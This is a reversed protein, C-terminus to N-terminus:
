DNIRNLKTVRLTFRLMKMEAEQVKKLDVTELGVNHSSEGCDGVYKRENKGVNKQCM